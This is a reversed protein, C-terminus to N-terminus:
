WRANHCVTITLQNFPLKRKHMMRAKDQQVLDTGIAPNTTSTRKM